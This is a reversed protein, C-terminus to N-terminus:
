ESQADMAEILVRLDSRELALLFCSTPVLGGVKFNSDLFVDAGTILDGLGAPRELCLLDVDSEGTTIWPLFAICKSRLVTTTTEGFDEGFSDLTETGV